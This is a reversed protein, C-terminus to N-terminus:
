DVWFKKEDLRVRSETGVRRKYLTLLVEVMDAYVAGTVLPMNVDIARVQNGEVTVQVPVRHIQEAGISPDEKAELEIDFTVPVTSTNHLQVRVPYSSEWPPINITTLDSPSRVTGDVKDFAEAPTPTYAPAQTEETVQGPAVPAQAGVPVGPAPAATPAAEAKPLLLNIVGFAALGGGILQVVTRATGKDLQGSVLFAVAAGGFLGLSLPLGGLALEVTVPAKIQVDPRVEVLQALRRARTQALMPPAVGLGQPALRNMVPYRQLM